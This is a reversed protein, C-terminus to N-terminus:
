AHKTRYQVNKRYDLQRDIKEEDALERARRSVISPKSQWYRAQNELELGSIWTPHHRLYFVIHNKVTRKQTMLPM